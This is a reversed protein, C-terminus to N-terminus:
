KQLKDVGMKPKKNYSILEVGERKNKNQVNGHM